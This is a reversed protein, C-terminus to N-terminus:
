IKGGQGGLANGIALGNLGLGLLQSYPNANEYQSVTTSQSIPIGRMISNLYNLQNMDWNQQSQFDQYGLDLSAQNQQQQQLGIQQLAAIRQREADQSGLGQQFLQNSAGLLQGIGGQRLSEQQQAAQQNAQFSSLGQSANFQDANLRRGQDTNFQGMAERYAQMLGNNETENIQQNQDRQAAFDQIGQRYGGFVGSRAAAANRGLQQEGFRTNMRTLQDNLVNDIYPNMYQHAAASDFTGTNVTQPTYNGATYQSGPGNALQSTIGTAQGMTPDAGGTLNQVAGFAQNQPDTFSSIRPGSYAAYPRNSLTEARGMIRHFYPVAAPDLTTNTVTQNSPQGGGMSM